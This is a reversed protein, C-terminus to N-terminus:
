AAPVLQDPDAEADRAAIRGQLWDDVESSLWGVARPGLRIPKPFTGVAIAEYISSRSLGTRAEVARRRLITPPRQDPSSSSM